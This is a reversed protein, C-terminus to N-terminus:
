RSWCSSPPIKVMKVMKFMEIMKIMTVLLLTPPLAHHHHVRPVEVPLWRRLLCCAPLIFYTTSIYPKYFM